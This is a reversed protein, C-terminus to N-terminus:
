LISKRTRKSVAALGEFHERVADWKMSTEILFWSHSEGIIKSNKPIHDKVKKVNEYASIEYIM